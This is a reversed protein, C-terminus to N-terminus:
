HALTIAFVEKAGEKLFTSRAEKLTSGTTTVDDILVITKEKINNKEKEPVSFCKKVNKLREKRKLKTQPTTNKTKKLFHPSYFLLGEKDHKLLSKSLLETQNFKREIFREKSLPIPVIYLKKAKINQKITNYIIESFSNILITNGRYKIHYIVEKVQDNKYNFINIIFPYPSVTNKPLCKEIDKISKNEILDVIPPSPFLISTITKKFLYFM